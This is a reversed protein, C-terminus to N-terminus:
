QDCKNSLFNLKQEIISPFTAIVSVKSEMKAACLPLPLDKHNVDIDEKIHPSSFPYTKEDLTSEM